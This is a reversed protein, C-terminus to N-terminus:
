LLAPKPASTFAFRVQPQDVVALGESLGVLDATQGLLIELDGGSGLSKAVETLTRAKILLSTSLSPDAPTWRIEKMALRYRDTALFTMTDGEIEVKVATLIPLPA